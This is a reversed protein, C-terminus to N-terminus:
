FCRLVSVCDCAYLVALSVVSCHLASLLFALLRGVGGRGGAVARLAVFLHHSRRDGIHRVGSVLRGVADDCLCARPSELSM